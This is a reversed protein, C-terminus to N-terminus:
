SKVGEIAQLPNACKGLARDFISGLDALAFPKILFALAGFRKARARDADSGSGTVVVAPMAPHSPRLDHELLDLGSGDPLDLDLCVALVQREQLLQRAAALTAVSQPQHGRRQLCRSISRALAENDEVVLITVAVVKRTVDTRVQKL